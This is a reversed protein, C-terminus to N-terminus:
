RGIHTQLYLSKNAIGKLLIAEHHAVFAILSHNNVTSGEKGLLASCYHILNLFFTYAKLMENGCVPMHIM